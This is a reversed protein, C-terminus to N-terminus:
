KEAKAPRHLVSGMTFAEFHLEATLLKHHWCVFFVPIALYSLNSFVRVNVVCVRTGGVCVCVHVCVHVLTALWLSVQAQEINWGNVYSSTKQGHTM